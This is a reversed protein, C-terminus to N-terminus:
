IHVTHCTVIVTVSKFFKIYGVSINMAFPLSKKVNKMKPTFNGFFISAQLNVFMFVNGPPCELHITNVLTFGEGKELGEVGGQGKEYVVVASFPEFHPIHTTSANYRIELGEVFKACDVLSNLVSLPTEAVHRFM